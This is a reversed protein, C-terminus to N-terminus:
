EQAFVKTIFWNDSYGGQSVPPCTTNPGRGSLWPRRQAATSGFGAEILYGIREAVIRNANLDLVTFRSGAVWYKRDAPTSIDEWAIGFKSEPAGIAHVQVPKNNSIPRDIRLFRPKGDVTEEVEVYGLGQQVGKPGNSPLTLITAASRARVSTASASYPDGYWYQDFHDSDTAPPLSKMVRVGAVGRFTQYIKEGSKEDCLKKFYAWAEAAYADRERKDFYSKAPLIGFLLAAAIATVTKKKKDKPLYLALAICAAALLWYAVALSGLTSSLGFLEGM